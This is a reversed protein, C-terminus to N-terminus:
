CPVPLCFRLSLGSLPFTLFLFSRAGPPDVSPERGKLLPSQTILLSNMAGVGVWHPRSGSALSDTPSCAPPLPMSVLTFGRNRRLWRSWSKFEGKGPFLGQGEKGMVLQGRATSPWPNLHYALGEIGKAIECFLGPPRAGGGGGRAASQRGGRSPLVLAFLGSSSDQGAEWCLWLSPWGPGEM